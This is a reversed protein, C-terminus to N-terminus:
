KTFTIPRRLLDRDLSGSGSTAVMYYMYATNDSTEFNVSSSEHDILAPYNYTGISEGPAPCAGGIPFNGPLVLQLETWSILDDSLSIYFGCTVPSNNPNYKGYGFALYRDLYTNWTVTGVDFVLITNQSVPACFPKGTPASVPTNGSYDYPANMHISFASGDWARWSQSNGLDGTRMLCQGGVAPGNQSPSTDSDFFVYYYGDSHKIINSPALYGLVNPTAGGLIGANWPSPLSAVVRDPANSATFSVGNDTSVAYTLTTWNCSNAPSPDGVKCNEAVPDHLENHILAHITSGIRYVSWIWEYNAFTYAFPSKQSALAPTGCVKDLHDFDPGAMVFNDPANNSFMLLSGNSLRVARAHNDPLDLGGNCSETSWDFVTEETGLTSAVAYLKPTAGVAETTACNYALSSDCARLRFFIPVNNKLGNITFIGSSIEIRYGGIMYATSGAPITIPIIGLPPNDFSNSSGKAAVGQLSALDFSVLLTLGVPPTTLGPGVESASYSVHM